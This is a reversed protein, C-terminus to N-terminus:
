LLELLTIGDSFLENSKEEDITKVVYSTKFFLNISEKDKVIKCKIAVKLKNLLIYINSYDNKSIFYNYLMLVSDYYMAVNKTKYLWTLTSCFNKLVLNNNDMEIYNELAYYLTKSYDREEIDEQIKLSYNIYELSNTKDGKLRYVSGLNCYIKSIITVEHEKLAIDLMSLYLEEAEDLRNSDQYCNAKLLNADLDEKISLSCEAILKDIHEISADFMKLMLYYLATNFYIKKLLNKNNLNNENYVNLALHMARLQELSNGGTLYMRKSLAIMLLISEDYKNNQMAFDLSIQMKFFSENLKNLNLYIDSIIEYIKSKNELSIEWKRIFGEIEKVKEEFNCQEKKELEIIRLEKIYDDAINNAQTYADELLWESTIYLNKIGKKTIISNMNDAIIKATPLVLNTKNNEILSILNRTVKNGAIQTQNAGIRKRIKRVKEGPTLIELENLM